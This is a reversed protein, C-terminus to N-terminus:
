QKIASVIGAVNVIIVAALTIYSFKQILSVTRNIKKASAVMGSGKALIDLIMESNM